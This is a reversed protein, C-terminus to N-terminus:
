KNGYNLKINPWNDQIERSLQGSFQLNQNTEYIQLIILKPPKRASHKGQKPLVLALLHPRELISSLCIQFHFTNVPSATGETPAYWGALFTLFHPSRISMSLSIEPFHFESLGTTFQSSSQLYHLHTVKMWTSNASETHRWPWKQRPRSGRLLPIHCLQMQAGILGIRAWPQCLIALEKWFGTWWSAPLTGIDHRTLITLVRTINM